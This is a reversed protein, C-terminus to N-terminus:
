QTEEQSGLCVVGSNVGEIDQRRTHMRSLLLCSVSGPEGLELAQVVCLGSNSGGHHYYGKQM